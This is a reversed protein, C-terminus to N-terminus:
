PSGNASQAQLDEVRVGKPPTFKFGAVKLETYIPDVFTVTSVNDLPDILETTRIEWAKTDVHITLGKYNSQPVKPTLKLVVLGDKVGEHKVNFEKRINGQGFLFNLASYLESDKVRLKYALKDAPQYSWLVDGDSVYYVRDRICM